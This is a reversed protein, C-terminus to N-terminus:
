SRRSSSTSSARRRARRRARRQQEVVARREDVAALHQPIEGIGLPDRVEARRGLVDVVRLLDADHRALIVRERVQPRQERGAARERRLAEVVDVLAHLVVEAQRRDGAAGVDDRAEREAARRQRHPAALQLAAAEAHRDVDEVVVALRNGGPVCWCPRARRCPATGTSASRSRSRDRRRSIGRRAVELAKGADPAVAIVDLQGRVAPEDEM